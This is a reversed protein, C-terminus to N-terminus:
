IRVRPELGSVWAKISETDPMPLLNVTTRYLGDGDYDCKAVMCFLPVPRDDVLHVAVLLERGEYCMRRSRFTLHSRSLECARGTWVVGPRGRTDIEAIDLEARFSFVAGPKAISTRISLREREDANSLRAPGLADQQAPRTM